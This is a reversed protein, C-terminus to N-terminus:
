QKGREGKADEYEFAFSITARVPVPKGDKKAPTFVMRGV